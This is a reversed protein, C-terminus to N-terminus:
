MFNKKTIIIMILKKLKTSTLVQYLDNIKKFDNLKIIINQRETQYKKLENQNENLLVEFQKILEKKM